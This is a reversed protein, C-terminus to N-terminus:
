ELLVFVTRRYMAEYTCWKVPKMIVSMAFEIENVYVLITVLAIFKSNNHFYIAKNTVSLSFSTIFISLKIHEKHSHGNMKLVLM